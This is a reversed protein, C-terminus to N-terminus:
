ELRLRKAARGLEPTLRSAVPPMRADREERLQVSEAVDRRQRPVNTRHRSIRLGQNRALPLTEADWGMAAGLPTAATANEDLHRAGNRMQTNRGWGPGPLWSRASSLTTLRRSASDRGTEKWPM